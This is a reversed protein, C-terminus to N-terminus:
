QLILTVLCSDGANDADILYDYPSYVDRNLASAGLVKSGGPVLVTVITGYDTRNGSGTGGRRIIYINGTNNILGVGANGKFGQFEIQNCRPPYERAGVPGGPPGAKTNPDGLSSSDVLSMISVPTGPTAVVILGLPWEPGNIDQRVSLTM